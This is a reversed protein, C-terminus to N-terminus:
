DTASLNLLHINKISIIQIIYISFRIPEFNHKQM